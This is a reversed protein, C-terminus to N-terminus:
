HNSILLAAAIVAAWRSWWRCLDGSPLRYLPSFRGALLIGGVPVACLLYSLVVISLEFEVLKM